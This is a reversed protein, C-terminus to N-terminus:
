ASVEEATVYGFADPDLIGVGVYAEARLVVENNRKLDGQGDPDGYEIIEFKVDDAYGWRVTTWDGVIALDKPGETTEDSGEILETYSVTSNKDCVGGAFSEPINGFRFDPYEHFGNKGNVINGMAAAGAPAFAVGNIDYKDSISNVITEIATDIPMDDAVQEYDCLGDISNTQKWPLAERSAPDIGHFAVIDIGRGIKKALGDKFTEMYPEQEEESMKVFEDTVRTQYLIKFPKVIKPKAKAKGAPKQTGEAVVSAEGDMSLIMEQTGRHPMPSTASLKALTSHGRVLSFIEKVLEPPFLGETTVVERDAM